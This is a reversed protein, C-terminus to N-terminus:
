QSFNVTTSAIRIVVRRACEVKDSCIEATLTWFSLECVMLIPALMTTSVSLIALASYVDPDIGLEVNFINDDEGNSQGKYRSILTLAHVATVAAKISLDACTVADISRPVM